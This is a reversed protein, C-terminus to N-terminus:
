RAAAQPSQSRPCCRRATCRCSRCASSKGLIGAMHHLDELHEDRLISILAAAPV